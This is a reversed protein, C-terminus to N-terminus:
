LDANPSLDLSPWDVHHTRSVSADPSMASSGGQWQIASSIVADPREASSQKLSFPCLMLPVGVDPSVVSSRAAEGATSVMSFLVAQGVQKDHVVRGEFLGEVADSDARICGPIRGRRGRLEFEGGERVGSIGSKAIGVNLLHIFRSAGSTMNRHRAPHPKHAINKSVL